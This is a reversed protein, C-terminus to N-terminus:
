TGTLKCYAYLGSGLFGLVQGIVNMQFFFLFFFGDILLSKDNLCDM